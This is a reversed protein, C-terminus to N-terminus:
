PSLFIKLEMSIEYATQYKCSIFGDLVLELDTCSLYSAIDIWLSQEGLYGEFSVGFWIYLHKGIDLESMQFPLDKHM